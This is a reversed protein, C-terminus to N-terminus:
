PLEAGTRLTRLRYRRTTHSGKRELPGDEGSSQSLLTLVTGRRLDSAALGIEVLDGRPKWEGDALAELMARWAPRLREGKEPDFGGTINRGRLYLKGVVTM